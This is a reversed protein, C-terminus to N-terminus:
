IWWEDSGFFGDTDLVTGDDMRGGFVEATSAQVAGAMSVVVGVAGASAAREAAVAGAMSALAALTGASVAREATPAGGLQILAQLTGDSTATAAQPTGAVPSVHQMVGDATATTASPTGSASAVAAMTGSADAPQASPTGSLENAAAAVLEDAGIDWVNAPRTDGDIDDDFPNDADASLDTGAGIAETDTAALHFDAGAHNVFDLNISRLGTEPSSTDSSINTASDTMTGVFCASSCDQTINNKPRLTGGTQAIGIRCDVVTNNYAYLATATCSIGHGNSAGKFGYIINNWAYTTSTSSAQRVGFGTSTGGGNIVCGNVRVTWAGSTDTTIVASRNNTPLIVIGTIRTGIAGNRIIDAASDTVSFGASALGGHEHGSAARIWPFRTADSAWGGVGVNDTIAGAQCELAAIEDVAVLDRQESSEWSSLLTYDGGGGTILSRPVEIPAGTNNYRVTPTFTYTNLAVDTSLYVHFEITDLHSITTGWELAFVLETYSASGAIPFTITDTNADENCEGAVATGTGAGLRFNGTAISDGDALNASNAYRVKTGSSSQAPVDTFGGTGNVQHKLKFAVVNNQNATAATQAIRFRLQWITSARRTFNVNAAASIATATAPAADDAFGQFAQQVWTPDVMTTM